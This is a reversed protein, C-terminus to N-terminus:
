EAEGRAHELIEEAEKLAARQRRKYEALLAQAEERLAQAEDIENKIRAARADLAAAAQRYLPRFTAAVFIVFAVAVWFEPSEWM